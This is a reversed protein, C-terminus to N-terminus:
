GEVLDLGEAMVSNDEYKDKPVQTPVEVMYQVRQSIACGNLLM